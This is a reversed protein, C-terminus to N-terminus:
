DHKKFEELHEIAMNEFTKQRIIELNNVSLKQSYDDDESIKKLINGLYVYDDVTFICEKDPILELGAPCKDTTVVPLGKAMAENIVLGWVDARTPLVFIDAALYWVDLKEKSLFDIFHLNKLKLKEKIELYEKTPKGGIIYVGVDEKLLASAKILIDFGKINIFRGVGIIMKKYPINLSDKLKMKQEKSLVNKIVDKKYLSTFSYRILNKKKAGYNMLYRDCQVGTSFYSKANSILLKKFFVNLKSENERLLGGDTEFYYKKNLIKLM